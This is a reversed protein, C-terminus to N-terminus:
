ELYQLSNLNIHNPLLEVIQGFDSDLYLCDGTNLVCFVRDDSLNTKETNRPFDQKKFNFLKRNTHRSDSLVKMKFNLHSQDKFVSHIYQKAVSKHKMRVIMGLNHISWRQYLDSHFWPIFNELFKSHNRGACYQHSHQMINGAWNQNFLLWWWWEKVSHIPLGISRINQEVVNYLWNAFEVTTPSWTINGHFYAVLHDRNDAWLLDCGSEDFGSYESHWNYKELGLTYGTEGVFVFVDSCFRNTDCDSIVEFNPKIHDMFFKPNEFVSSSNCWVRINKFDGPPLNRLVSTMMLTSDIGGSWMIVWPKHWHSARLDICRQDTVQEFSNDSSWDLIPKSFEFTGPNRCFMTDEGLRTYWSSATLNEFDNRGRVLGPLRPDIDMLTPLLSPHELLFQNLFAISKNETM